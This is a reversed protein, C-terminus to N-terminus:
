SFNGTKNTKKLSGVEPKNMREPKMNQIENFEAKIMNNGEVKKSKTARKLFIRSGSLLQNTAKLRFIGEQQSKPQIKWITINNKNDNLEM